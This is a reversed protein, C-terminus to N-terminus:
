YVKLSVPAAVGFHRALPHDPGAAQGFLNQDTLATAEPRRKRNELEHTCIDTTVSIRSHGMQKSIYAIDAGENM